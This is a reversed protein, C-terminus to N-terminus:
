NGDELMEKIDGLRMWIAKLPNETFLEEESDDEEESDEEEESDDEDGVDDFSEEFEDEKLELPEETEEEEVIEENEM